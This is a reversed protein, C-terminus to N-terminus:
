DNDEDNFALKSIDIKAYKKGKSEKKKKKKEHKEIRKTIALKDSPHIVEGSIADALSRPEGNSYTGFLTKQISPNESIHKEASKLVETGVDLVKKLKGM